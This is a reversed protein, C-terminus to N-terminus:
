GADAIRRAGTGPRLVSKDTGTFTGTVTSSSSAARTDGAAM